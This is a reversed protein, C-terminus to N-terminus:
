TPTPSPSRRAWTAASASTSGPTARRTPSRSSGSRTTSLETPSPRVSLAIYGVTKDKAVLSAGSSSLPSTADRVDPDAKLAKVTDDIPQKYESATIKKGDPAQLVVPNTGNAQSPFRKTLLDTAAQSDTGPLTLNDNVERASRV